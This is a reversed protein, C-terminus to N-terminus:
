LNDRHIRCDSIQLIGDVAQFRAIMLCDNHPQRLCSEFGATREREAPAIQIRRGSMM